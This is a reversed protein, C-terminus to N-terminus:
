VINKIGNFIADAIRCRCSECMMLNFDPSLTDMFACEILVAPMKTNKLVYFHAEKDLDGDSSDKRLRLEPM